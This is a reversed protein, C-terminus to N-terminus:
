KKEGLRIRPDLLPYALDVLTNIVVVFFCVVMTVGVVGNFDNAIIADAGYRAIGPWSFVKEVIFNAGILIPFLFGITTLTASFSNRLLYKYNIIFPHMGLADALEPYPKAREDIMKARIMLAITAIPGSALVITPAALHRLSEKLAPWNLTLMSDLVYFGTLNTPPNINIRGTIPLLAFVLGFVLQMMIAIWFNPISSGFLAVTRTFHDGFRGNYSASIVGLPVGIALSLLIAATILELTAPLREAVVLAVDRREILSQGMRGQLLGGVFDVYQLPLSKDLGMEARMREIQAQSPMDGLAAAIPDGPLVRTLVFIIVSVGFMVLLINMLRKLIAM